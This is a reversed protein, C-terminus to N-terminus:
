FELRFLVLLNHPKKGDLNHAHVLLPNDDTQEDVTIILPHFIREGGM